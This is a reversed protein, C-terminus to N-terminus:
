PSRTCLGPSSLLPRAQLYNISRKFLFRVKLDRVFIKLPSSRYVGQVSLRVCPERVAAEVPIAARFRVLGKSSQLSESFLDQQQRRIYRSVGKEEIRVEGEGTGIRRWNRARQKPDRAPIISAIGNLSHYLGHNMGCSFCAKPTHVDM